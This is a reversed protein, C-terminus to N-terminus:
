YGEMSGHEELYAAEEAHIEDATKEVYNADAPVFTFYDWYPNASGDELTPGKLAEQFWVNSWSCHNVVLDMIVEIGYEHCTALMSEFDEMTGYDSNVAYYDVVDYGHASGSGTIPMLWIGTIGLDALYPVAEEVGKFDGIHDGNSDRFARVFIEYYVDGEQEDIVGDKATFAQPEAAFVAAQSGFAMIVALGTSLFKKCM